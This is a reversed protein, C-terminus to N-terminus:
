GGAVPLILAVADGDRLVHDRGVVDGGVAVAAAALDGAGPEIEDAVAALMLEVTAGAPLRVSRRGAGLRGGLRITVTIETGAPSMRRNHLRAWRSAGLALAGPASGAQRAASLM